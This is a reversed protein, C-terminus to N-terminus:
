SFTRGSTLKDRGERESNKAIIVPIERIGDSVYTLQDIKSVKEKREIM